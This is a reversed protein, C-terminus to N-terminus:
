NIDGVKDSPYKFSERLMYPMPLDLNIGKPPIPSEFWKKYIPNIEASVIIRRVEQDVVRKFEPDGKPIMIAYPEVTM